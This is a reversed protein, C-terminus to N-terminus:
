ERCIIPMSDVSSCEYVELGMDELVDKPCDSFVSHGLMCMGSNPIKSLVKRLAPTELGVDKSFSRSLRFLSDINPNAIFEKVCKSGADGIRKSTAKDRLTTGTDLPGGLVALSLKEFRLGSDRIEGEPPLGPEVRIPVHSECMLASVDGLGGGGVVEAIHANLFATDLPKDEFTCACYAAAIAGSASMGFGQGVPLDNEITVDFGRSSTMLIAARTIDCRCEKGDMMVDLRDDSREELTVTTGKSLKIGVGRSGTEMIANSRVPEFFCTIHGPCFVSTMSDEFM